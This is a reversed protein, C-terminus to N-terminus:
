ARKEDGSKRRVGALGFGDGTQHIKDLTGGLGRNEETGNGTEVVSKLKDVAALAVFQYVGNQGGVLFSGCAGVENEAFAGVEGASTGREFAGEVGADDGVHASGHQEGEGAFAAGGGFDGGGDGGEAALHLFLAHFQEAHEEGTHAVFVFLGHGCIEGEGDAAPGVGESGNEVGAVAVDRRTKKFESEDLLRLLMGHANHQGFALFVTEDLSGGNENLALHGVDNKEAVGVLDMGAGRFEGHAHVTCLDDIGHGGGVELVERFGVGLKAGLLADGDLLGAFFHGVAGVVAGHHDVLFLGVAHNGAGHVGGGM